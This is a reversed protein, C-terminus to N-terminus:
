IAAEATATPSPSTAAAAAAAAAIAAATTPKHLQSTWKTCVEEPEEEQPIQLVHAACTHVFTHIHTRTHM